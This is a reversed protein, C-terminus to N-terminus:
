SSFMAPTLQQQQHNPITIIYLPQLFVNDNYEGFREWGHDEPKLRLIPKVFGESQLNKVKVETGLLEGSLERVVLYNCSFYFLVLCFSNALLLGNYHYSKTLNKIIKKTIFYFAGAFVM